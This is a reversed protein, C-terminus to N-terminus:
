LGLTAKVDDDSAFQNEMAERAEPSLDQMQVSGDEIQDSGVSDPPVVDITVGDAPIGYTCRNIRIHRLLRAGDKEEYYFYMSTGAPVLAPKLKTLDPTAM